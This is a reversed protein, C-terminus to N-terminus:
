TEIDEPKKDVTPIIGEIFKGKRYKVFFFGIISFVVAGIFNVLLDKMTDMLGIDLYGRIPLAEGNVVTSEINKIIIAKNVNDGNLAVSSIMNVVTDKQMDTHMLMDCGFEFFEWLVGITMSFCFAVLALYAPSLNFKIKSSKNLIDVMAFGIAACLFGNITHLMTDWYPFIIYFSNVEGLIEAAFIFLLIIIELTPPLNIKFNKEIFSPVLFLILALVCTFTNEYQKTLISIVMAGIALIRLISYTIYTAKHKKMRDIFLKRRHKMTLKPTTSKEKKLKNM